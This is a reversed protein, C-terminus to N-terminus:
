QKPFNALALEGGEFSALRPLYTLRNIPAGYSNFYLTQEQEGKQMKVMYQTRSPNFNVVVTKNSIMTWGNNHVPALSALSRYIATPLKTDEKVMIGRILRGDKHYLAKLKLRPSDIQLYFKSLRTSSSDLGTYTVNAYKNLNHINRFEPYQEQELNILMTDKGKTIKSPDAQANSEQVNVAFTFSCLIFSILILKPSQM